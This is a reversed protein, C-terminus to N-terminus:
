KDELDHTERPETAEDPRITNELTPIGRVMSFIYHTRQTDEALKGALYQTVYLSAKIPITAGNDARKIRYSQPKNLHKTSM